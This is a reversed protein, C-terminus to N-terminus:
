AVPAPVAGRLFDFWGTLGAGTTASLQLFQLEPNIRHANAIALDVDFPV